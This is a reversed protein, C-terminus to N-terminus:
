FGWSNEVPSKTPNGLELWTEIEEDISQLLAKSDWAPKWGVLDKNVCTVKPSYLDTEISDIQWDRRWCVELGVHTSFRQCSIRAGSRFSYWKAMNEYYAWWSSRTCPPRNSISRTNGVMQSPPFGHFLVWIDWGSPSKKTPRSRSAPHLIWHPGIHPYPSSGALTNSTKKIFLRQKLSKKDWKLAWINEVCLDSLSGSDYRRSKVLGVIDRTSKYVQRNDIAAKILTPFLSPRKNWTGTGRGDTFPQITLIELKWKRTGRWLWCKRTSSSECLASPM